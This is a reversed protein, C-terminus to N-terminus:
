IGLGLLKDLIPDIGEVEDQCDWDADEAADILAIYIKRRIAKDHVNKVLVEAVKRVIDTGGSWGM